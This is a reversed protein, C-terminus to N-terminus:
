ATRRTPTRWNATHLRHHRHTSGIAAEPHPQTRPADYRMLKHGTATNTHILHVVLVSISACRGGGVSRAFGCRLDAARSRARAWIRPRVRVGARMWGRPEARLRVVLRARTLVLAGCDRRCKVDHAQPKSRSPAHAGVSSLLPQDLPCPRRRGRM